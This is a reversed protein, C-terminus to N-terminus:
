QRFSARPMSSSSVRSATPSGERGVGFAEITPGDPWDSLLPFEIGQSEAFAGNSAWSDISVGAVRAGLSQLDGYREQFGRM